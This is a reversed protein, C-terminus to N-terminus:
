SILCKGAVTGELEVLAVGTVVKATDVETGAQENVAVCQIAAGQM